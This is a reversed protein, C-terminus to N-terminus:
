AHRHICCYHWRREHMQWCLHICIELARVKQVPVGEAATTLVEIDLIGGHSGVGRVMVAPPFVGEYTGSLVAPAGVFLDPPPNPYAELSKVGRIGLTVDRLIPLHAMSMLAEIQEGLEDPFLSVECYGHGM